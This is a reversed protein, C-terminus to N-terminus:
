FNGFMLHELLCEGIVQNLSASVSPFKINKWKEGLEDGRSVWFRRVDM